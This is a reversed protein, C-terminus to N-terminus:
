PPPEGFQWERGFPPDSSNPPPKPRQALLRTAMPLAAGFVIAEGRALGPIQRAVNGAAGEAAAAVSRQDTENSLRFSVWTGCQALVTSSVEAPRQTSILMSVGFKRGEKALREYALAHQGTESDGPLQRLYHHAEELVLLTPHTGGPGRRFLEAAFLELLSGLVFPMLDQALRSLDVVHVSWSDSAFRAEGFVEDVLRRGEAAMSLPLASGRTEEVDVVDRFREDDILGRIRNVLSHIHGYAFADRKYSDREKKNAYWEAALCSLARMHPWAEASPTAKTRVKELAHHAAAPNDPRCDDFLTLPCGLLGAGHVDAHVLHLHELAFRLAPMQTKESPLLLRSLGHRGLAYYPITLNTYGERKGRGLVTTKLRADIPEFAPAYEGNVDFVVIRSRPALALAQLTAAVFHTKGQGTAGLVAIHRSLLDDAAVSVPLLGSRADHGLTIRSAADPKADLTSLVETESLPFAAAGLVPLRWDQAIFTLSGSQRHIFGVVRGRLQRLPETQRPSYGRAQSTLEKPEAFAISVVRMVIIDSAGEVGILDGPQGVPSVGNVHGAVHGRASDHLNLLLESGDIEVVFGLPERRMM